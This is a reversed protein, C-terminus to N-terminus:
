QALNHAGQTCPLACSGRGCSCTGNIGTPCKEACTGCNTAVVSAEGGVVEALAKDNLNRLTERNLQLKGVKKKM